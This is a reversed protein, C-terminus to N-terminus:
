RPDGEPSSGPEQYLVEWEWAGAPRIARPVLLRIDREQGSVVPYGYRSSRHAPERGQLGLSEVFRHHAALREEAREWAAPVLSQTRARILDRFSADLEVGVSHRGCGMAALVTTGTGLFPDLVLDGYLSYMRILREALEYPFSGSRPRPLDASGEEESSPAPFLLGADSKRMGQRTGKLDWLDSFWLNREEWFFASERRRKRDEGVTFRRLGGKRFILIWEHELTVYAGAPLTGSGVFKSPSNAPKRWVIQPLCHFGLASFAQLVRSHNPFLRFSGGISRTADGINICALAGPRLVRLLQRWVRDLLEHMAEFCADGDQRVLAEAVREDQAAFQADWMKIMPYPPSTVVLDVSEDPVGSLETADGIQVRHRTTFTDSM